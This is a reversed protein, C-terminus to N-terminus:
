VAPRSPHRSAVSPSTAALAAHPRLLARCPPPICALLGCGAGLCCCCSRCCCCSWCRCGQVCGPPVLAGAQPLPHLRHRAHLPAAGRARQPSLSYLCPAPSAAHPRFRCHPPTFPRPVEPVGCLRPMTAHPPRPTAAHLPAAHRAPAASAAAWSCPARRRREGCATQRRTTRWCAACRASPPRCRATSCTCLSRCPAPAPPLTFFTNGIAPVHRKPAPSSHLVLPVRRRGRARRRPRGRLGRQRACGSTSGGRSCPVLCPSPTAHLCTIRSPVQVPLRAALAGAPRACLSAAQSIQLMRCPLSRRRSGLRWGGPLRHLQLLVGARPVHPVGPVLGGPRVQPTSPIPANTPKPPPEAPLQVSCTLLVLVCRSRSRGPWPLVPRSPARESRPRRTTSRALCLTSSAACPLLAARCRVNCRVDLWPTRM